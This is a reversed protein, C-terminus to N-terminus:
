GHEDTAMRKKPQPAFDVRRVKQGELGALLERMTKHLGPHRFEPALEALPALVFRREHLRPHPIELKGAHVTVHGYFLIDIDLTRPGNVPGSRKRGLALEIKQIRALLMLPFLDTEVEVVMNLFQRQAEFGIPETEFVPSVNTVILDPAALRDIASQLMQQREGINSGLGLYVTKV